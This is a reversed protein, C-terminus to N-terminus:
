KVHLKRRYFFISEFEHEAYEEFATGVNSLVSSLPNLSNRDLYTRMINYVESSKSDDDLGTSLYKLLHQQHDQLTRILECVDRVRSRRREIEKRVNLATEKKGSTSRKSIVEDGGDM